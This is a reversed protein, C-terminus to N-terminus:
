RAAVMGRDRLLEATYTSVCAPAGTASRIVLEFGERCEVQSPSKKMQKLPALVKQVPPPQKKEIIPDGTVVLADFFVNTRTNRKADMTQVIIDSVATPKTVKFSIDIATRYSDIETTKIAVDKLIGNPDTVVSTKSVDSDQLLPEKLIADFRQKFSMTALINVHRDDAYDGISLSVDQLYGAGSNEFAVLRMKVLDGTRVKTTPLTQTLEDVDFSKGDIILGKEVLRKGEYTVGLTPAECDRRCGTDAFANVTLLSISALVSVAIILQFLTKAM